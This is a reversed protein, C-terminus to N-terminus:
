WHAPYWAIWWETWESDEYKTCCMRLKLRFSTTMSKLLNLPATFWRKMWIWCLASWTRSRPRTRRWPALPPCSTITKTPPLRDCTPITSLNRPPEQVRHRLWVTSDLSKRRWPAPKPTPEQDPAQMTPQLFHLPNALKLCDAHRSTFKWSGM